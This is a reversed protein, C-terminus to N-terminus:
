FPWPGEPHSFEDSVYIHYTPFIGRFVQQPEETKIPSKIVSSL